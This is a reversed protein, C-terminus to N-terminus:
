LGMRTRLSDATSGKLMDSLGILRLFRTRVQDFIPNCRETKPLSAYQTIVQFIHRYCEADIRIVEDSIRGSFRNIVDVDDGTQDVAIREIPGM